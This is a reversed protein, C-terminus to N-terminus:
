ADDVWSHRERSCAQGGLSEALQPITPLVEAELHAPLPARSLCSWHSEGGQSIFCLSSTKQGGDWGTQRELQLFCCLADMQEGGHLSAGSAPWSRCIVDRGPLLLLHVVQSLSLLYEWAQNPM